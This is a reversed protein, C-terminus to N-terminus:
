MPLDAPDLIRQRQFAPHGTSILQRGNKRKEIGPAM